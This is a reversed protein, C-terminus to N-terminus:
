YLHNVNKQIPKLLMEFLEQLRALHNKKQQQQQQGWWNLPTGNNLKNNLDKSAENACSHDGLSMLRNPPFSSHLPIGLVECVLYILSLSLSTMQKYRYRHEDRSLRLPPLARLDFRFCSIHWYSYFIYIYSINISKRNFPHAILINQVALSQSNANTMMSFNSAAVSKPWEIYYQKIDISERWGAGIHSYRCIARSALM